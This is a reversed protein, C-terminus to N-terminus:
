QSTTEAASRAWPTGEGDALRARQDLEVGPAAARDDVDPDDVDVADLM